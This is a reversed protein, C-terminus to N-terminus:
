TQMRMIEQYAQVVKNKVQLLMEFELASTQTKLAVEHLEGKGELFGAVAQAADNGSSEVDSIAKLISSFETTKASGSAPLPTVPLIPGSGSIPTIM